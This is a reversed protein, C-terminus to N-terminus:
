AAPSLLARVAGEAGDRALRALHDGLLGAFDTNGALEGFVDRIGLLAAAVQRPGSVGRLREAFIGALPDNVPFPRGDGSQGTAVHRMWAAVALSAWVPEAGAAYRDSITGLLRQPLKQSGDMAVQATSHRLAPNAFRPLQREQYAALDVGTPPDLTPAVDEALLRQVYGALSPDAAATAIYEHGALGGLYALASHAGNVVRLKMIEYPAVDPVLLAGALEWRPRPGAFDDEIVWHSDPEAVVAAEDRVGLLAAADARDAGTTAPVIRDVMTAPFRAAAAVWAAADDGGVLAAVAVATGSGGPGPRDPRDSRAPRGGHAVACAQVYQRVLRALTPGNSPLNDCCVVTLPPCGALARAALGAALQGAVTRPPRGALDAAIEPDALRLDRTAPDLRYGKETVTLTVVSVAPDALREVLVAPKAGAFAVARIAGIVQPHVEGSSRVLLTYLCDQPALQDVVAASRQTFGAIGWDGCEETYVAQHARHFAGVGLHVVGIKRGRPDHRPRLGPPIRGLAAYGLRGSV